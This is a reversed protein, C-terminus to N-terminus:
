TKLITTYFYNKSSISMLKKKLYSKLITYNNIMIDSLLTKM